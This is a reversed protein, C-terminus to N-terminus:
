LLASLVWSSRTIKMIFEMKLSRNVLTLVLCTTAKMCGPDSVLWISTGTGLVNMQDLNNMSTEFDINM